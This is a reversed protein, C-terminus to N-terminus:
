GALIHLNKFVEKEINSEILGPISYCMKMLIRLAENWLSLILSNM